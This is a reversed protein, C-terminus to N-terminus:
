FPRRPMNATDIEREVQEKIEQIENPSYYSALGLQREVNSEIEEYEKQAEEDICSLRTHLVGTSVRLTDIASYWKTPLNVDLKSFLGTVGLMMVLTKRQVLQKFDM